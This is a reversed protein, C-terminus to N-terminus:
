AWVIRGPKIEKQRTEKDPYGLICCGIGQYGDLGLSHMFEKGEPLQLMEDCRNIWCSGVGLAFAATQMAGIVLSGDKIQNLNNVKEGNSLTDKPAVILCLTPAGYLPDSETGMIKANLASMEAIKEREEIVIIKTFQKNSGTPANLGCDLIKKLANRDIKDKKYSRCSRRTLLAEIADM